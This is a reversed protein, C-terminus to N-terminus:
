RDNGEGLIAALLMIIVMMAISLKICSALDLVGFICFHSISLYIM